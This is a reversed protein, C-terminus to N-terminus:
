AYDIPNKEFWREDRVPGTNKLAGRAAGAVLHRTRWIFGAGLGIAGGLIGLALVQAAPKRSHGLGTAIGLCVGVTAPKLAQRASDSLFPALPEGDLVEGGAQSAGEWGSNALKRAYRANSGVWKRLSM